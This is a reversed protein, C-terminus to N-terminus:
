NLQRVARFRWRQNFTRVGVSSWSLDGNLYPDDVDMVDVACLLVERSINGDNQAPFIRPKSVSTASNCMLREVLDPVRTHNDHIFSVKHGAPQRLRDLHVRIAYYEITLTINTGEGLGQMQFREREVLLGEADLEDGNSEARIFNLEHRILLPDIRTEFVGTPDGLGNTQWIPGNFASIDLLTSVSKSRAKLHSEQQGCHSDM